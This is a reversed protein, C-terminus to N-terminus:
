AHGAHVLQGASRQRQFLQASGKSAVTAFDLPALATDVTPDERALSPDAITTRGLVHTDAGARGQRIEAIQFYFDGVGVDLFDFLGQDALARNSSRAPFGPPTEM